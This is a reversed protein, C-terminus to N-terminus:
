AIGSRDLAADLFDDSKVDYGFGYEEKVKHSMTFISEKQILWYRM